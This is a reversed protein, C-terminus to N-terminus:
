LRDHPVMPEAYFTSTLFFERLHKEIDKSIHGQHVNNNRHADM